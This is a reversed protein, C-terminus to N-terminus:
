QVISNILIPKSSIGKWQASQQVELRKEVSALLSNASSRLMFETFKSSLTKADKTRNMSVVPAQNLGNTNIAM